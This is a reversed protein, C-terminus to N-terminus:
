TGRSYEVYLINSFSDKFLM